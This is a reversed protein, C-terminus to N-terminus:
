SAGSALASAGFPVSRCPIPMTSPHESHTKTGVGELNWLLVRRDAALVLREMSIGQGMSLEPVAYCSTPHLHQTQAEFLDKCLRRGVAHGGLDSARKGRRRLEVPLPQRM